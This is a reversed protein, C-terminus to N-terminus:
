RLVGLTVAVALLLGVVFAAATTVVPSRSPPWWQAWAPPSGAAAPAVEARAGPRTPTSLDFSMASLDPLYAVFEVPKLASKAADSVRVHIAEDDSGGAARVRYAVEELQAPSWIAVPSGNAFTCAVRGDDFRRRNESVVRAGALEGRVQDLESTLRAITARHWELEGDHAAVLGAVYRDHMAEVESVRGVALEAVDRVMRAEITRRGAYRDLLAALRMEYGGAPLGDKRDTAALAADIAQGIEYRSQDREWSEPPHDAPTSHM